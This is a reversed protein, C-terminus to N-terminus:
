LRSGLTYWLGECVGNVYPELGLKDVVRYSLAGHPMRVRMTHLKGLDSRLVEDVTVVSPAGVVEKPSAMYVVAVRSGSRFCKEIERGVNRPALYPEMRHLINGTGKSLLTLFRYIAKMSGFYHGDLKESGSLTIHAVSYWDAADLFVYASQTKEDRSIGM